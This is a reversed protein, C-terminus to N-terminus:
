RLRAKSEPQALGLAGGACRLAERRAGDPAGGLFITDWRTTYSVLTAM